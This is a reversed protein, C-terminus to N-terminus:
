WVTHLLHNVLLATAAQAVLWLKPRPLLAAAAPLWIAFPLWIREVEAKSLGSLDAVVIAALAGLALIAVPATKEQPLDPNQTSDQGMIRGLVRIQNTSALRPLAAYGAPGISFALAAFNAWAWYWYPRLSAIGQYYRIRVLSYGDFWWFGALAFGAVPLLAGGSAWLLPKWRRAAIAVAVALFAMLVLGYSLFVAFGFLVGALVTWLARGTALLAVAVSTVGLFLGDGSVGVWVAGPFLVVFPVAARAIEGSGLSRLASPVAVAAFSGVAICTLAAAVGGSLGVRDLVAFVLLAGPPHGAAQTNWSDPQFDLIRDAYGHIMAPIDGASPLAALYEADVTLRTAVGHNWGDVMALSLTWGFAAVYSVALLSRWPLNRPFAFIVLLAILIAPVTGPGTHPIWHAYLPAAAAQVDVQRGVVIAAGVLVAAGCLVLLEARRM